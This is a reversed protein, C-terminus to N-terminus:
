YWRVVFNISIPVWAAASAAFPLSKRSVGVSAVCAKSTNRTDHDAFRQCESKEVGCAKRGASMGLKFAVCVLRECKGLAVYEKRGFEVGRSARIGASITQVAQGGM